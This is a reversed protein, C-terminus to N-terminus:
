EFAIETGGVFSKASHFTTKRYAVKNKILKGALAEAKSFSISFRAALETVSVSDTDSCFDLAESLLESDSKPKTADLYAAYNNESANILALQKEFEQNYVEMYYDLNSTSTHQAVSKALVDRYYNPSYQARVFDALLTIEEDTVLGSQLRVNEQSSALSVIMDGRGNLTEAGVNDLIIRSELKSSVKFAIRSPFNAKILGSIVNARPSQTAIIVHIGAARGMQALAVLQEEIQKRASGLMLQSFEDIVCVITSLQVQYISRLQEIQKVKYQNLMDYRKDMEKSLWVLAQVADNQTHIIPCILHPIDAYASLEVRKPDIMIFEVEWPSNKAILTSIITNLLVSKGSGTTGALLLHPAQSIDLTQITGSKRNIGIEVNLDNQKIKPNILTSINVTNSNRNIFLSEKSDIPLQYM